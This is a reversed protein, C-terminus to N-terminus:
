NALAAVTSYKAGLANPLELAPLKVTLLVLGDNLRTSLAKSLHTVMVKPLTLRCVM